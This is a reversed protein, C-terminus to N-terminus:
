YPPACSKPTLPTHRMPCPLELALAIQLPTRAVAWAMLCSIGALSAAAIPSPSYHCAPWALKYLLQVDGRDLFAMDCVEFAGLLDYAAGKGVAAQQLNGERMGAVALM